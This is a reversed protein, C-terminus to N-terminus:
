NVLYLYGHSHRIWNWILLTSTCAPVYPLTRYFLAHGVGNEDRMCEVSEEVHTCEARVGMQVTSLRWFTCFHVLPTCYRVIFSSNNGASACGALSM